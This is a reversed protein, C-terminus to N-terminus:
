PFMEGANLINISGVKARMVKCHNLIIKRRTWHTVRSSVAGWKVRGPSIFQTLNSYNLCPDPSQSGATGAGAMIVLWETVGEEEEESSHPGWARQHFAVCSSNRLLILPEPPAPLNVRVLLCNSFVPDLNIAGECPILRKKTLFYFQSCNTGGPGGTAGWWLGCVNIQHQPM